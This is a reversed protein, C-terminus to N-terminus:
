GVTQQPLVQQPATPAVTTEETTKPKFIVM